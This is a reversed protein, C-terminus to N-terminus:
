RPRPRPAGPGRACAPARRVRSCEGEQLEVGEEAEPGKDHSGPPRPSSPTLPGAGGGRRGPARGGDARGPRPQPVGPGPAPPAM